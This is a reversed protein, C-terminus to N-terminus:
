PPEATSSAELSDDPQEPPCLEPYHITHPDGCVLPPAPLLPPPPPEGEIKMPESPRAPFLGLYDIRGEGAVARLRLALVDLGDASAWWCWLSRDGRAIAPWSRRDPTPCQLPTDVPLRAAAHRFAIMAARGPEPSDDLVPRASLMRRDPLGWRADPSLLALFGARDGAAARALLGDILVPAHSPLPLSGEGQQLDDRALLGAPADLDQEPYALLPLPIAADPDAPAESMAALVVQLREPDCVSSRWSVRRAQPWGPVFAWTRDDHRTWAIASDQGLPWAGAEVEVGEFNHLHLAIADALELGIVPVITLEVQEGSPDIFVHDCGLELRQGLYESWGCQELALQPDFGYNSPCCRAGLLPRCREPEHANALPDSRAAVPEPSAVTTAPSTPCGSSLLALLAALSRAATDFSSRDRSM